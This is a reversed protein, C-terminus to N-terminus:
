LMSQKISWKWLLHCWKVVKTLLNTYFSDNCQQQLYKDAILMAPSKWTCMKSFLFQSGHKSKAALYQALSERLNFFTLVCYSKALFVSNHLYFGHAYISIVDCVWLYWLSFLISEKICLQWHFNQAWPVNSFILKRWALHKRVERQQGNSGRKEEGTLSLGRKFTDWLSAWWLLKCLHM